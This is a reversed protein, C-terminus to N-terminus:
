FARCLFQWVRGMLSDLHVKIPAPPELLRKVLVAECGNGVVAGLNM